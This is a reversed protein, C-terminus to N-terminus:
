SAQESGQGRALCPGLGHAALFRPSIRASVFAFFFSPPHPIETRPLLRRVGLMVSPAIFHGVLRVCRGVCLRRVRWAHRVM